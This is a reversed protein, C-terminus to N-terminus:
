GHREYWACWDRVEQPIPRGDLLATMAHYFAKDRDVKPARPKGHGFGEPIFTKGNWTYKGNAPLDGADVDDPKPKAVNRAGILKGNKDLVAVRM